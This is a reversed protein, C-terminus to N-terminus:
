LRLREKIKEIIKKYQFINKKSINHLYIYEGYIGMRREERLSINGLYNKGVYDKIINETVHIKKSYDFLVYLNKNISINQKEELFEINKKIEMFHPMSGEVGLINFDSEMLAMCTFADYIFKNSSLIVIDFNQKLFNLIKRYDEIHFYEYDNIFYSGSFFHINRFGKVKTSLFKVNNKNLNNKHLADILLNLGTSRSRDLHTYTNRINRDVGFYSDLKPGLRDSELVAISKDKFYKSLVAAFETLFISNDFFTLVCEFTDIKKQIKKKNKKVEIKKEEILNIFINRKELTLNELIYNYDSKKIESNIHEVLLDLKVLENLECNM